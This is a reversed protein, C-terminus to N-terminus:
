KPITFIFNPHNDWTNEYWMDGGHKRILDRSITLGLGTSHNSEFQEFIAARKEEPIPPGSNYVNLRYHDDKEEFGFAIHGSAAYNIANRILNRYVIRIWQANARIIIRNGPIAGLRNDIRIMNREIEQSFEDLIPDIVDQRLDFYERDPMKVNMVSSKCLYENVLRELRSIRAYLDLLTVRASEDVTGFAGRALLKVTSGISSLPGRIDHTAISLMNLIHREREVRETVERCVGIIGKVGGSGDRWPFKTVSIWIEAGRPCKRRELKDRVPEGTEIIKKEELFLEEAHAHPLFDFDTKGIMGEVTTNAYTACVNSVAVFKGLLDKFFIFDPTSQMLAKIM